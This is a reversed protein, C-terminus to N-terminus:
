KHFAQNTNFVSDASWKLMAMHCFPSLMWFTGITDGCWSVLPPSQDLLRSPIKIWKRCRRVSFLFCATPWVKVYRQELAVACLVASRATHESVEFRQTVQMMKFLYLLVTKLLVERWVVSIASKLVAKLWFRLQCPHIRGGNKQKKTKNEMRRWQHHVM